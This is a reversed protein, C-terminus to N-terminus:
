ITLGCIICFGHSQIFLSCSCLVGHALQSQRGCLVGSHSRQVFPLVTYNWAVHESLWGPNCALSPM